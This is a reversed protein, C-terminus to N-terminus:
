SPATRAPVCRKARGRGSQAGRGAGRRAHDHFCHTHLCLDAGGVRGALRLVLAVAHHWVRIGSVPQVRRRPWVAPHAGPGGCVAAHHHAAAGRHEAAACLPAIRARGDPGHLHGAAHHQHGDDLGPVAHELGCRLAPRGGPVVPQLQARARHAGVGRGALVPRGGSFVCGVAGQAGSVRHVARAPQWLGGGCGGRVSRGQLLGATGGRFVAAGAAGVAGCVRGLGHRAPARGTRGPQHEDM